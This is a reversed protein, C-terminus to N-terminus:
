KRVRVTISKKVDGAKFTIRANGTKKRATITFTAQGSEDAQNSTPSISIRNKGAMNITATVTEGEVACDDEGTVTVTVDGSKKRKLTMTTTDVSISEAECLTPTTTAVPSPEPGTPPITPSPEQTPTPTPTESVSTCSFKGDGTNWGSLDDELGTLTLTSNACNKVTFELKVVEGSSGSAIESTTIGVVRIQGSSAENVEFYTFGNVLSGKTFNDTFDLVSTDYSVEFQLAGVANPINSMSVTFTVTDGVEASQDNIDLNQAYLKGACLVTLLMLFVVIRRMKVM